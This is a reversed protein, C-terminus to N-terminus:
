SESQIKIISEELKLLSIGIEEQVIKQEQIQSELDIRERESSSVILRKNLRRLIEKTQSYIEQQDAIESELRKLKLTLYPSPPEKGRSISLHPKFLCDPHNRWLSKLRSISIAIGMSGDKVQLSVIGVVYGTERDIVPSGSYGERLKFAPDDLKFYWTPIREEGAKSWGSEKALVGDLALFERKERYKTLPPMGVIQIKQGETASDSLQLLAYEKASEVRLIAIDAVRDYAEIIALKGDVTAQYQTTPYANEVVHACTVVYTDREDRHVCFGTGFNSSSSSAADEGMPAVAVLCVSDFTSAM